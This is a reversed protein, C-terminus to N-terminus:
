AEGRMEKMIKRALARKIDLHLPAAFTEGAEWVHWEKWLPSSKDPSKRLSMRTLAKFRKM